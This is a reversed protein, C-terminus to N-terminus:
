RAVSADPGTKNEPGTKDALAKALTDFAMLMRVLGEFQKLPVM